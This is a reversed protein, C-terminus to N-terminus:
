KVKTYKAEQIKRYKIIAVGGIIVVIPVVVPLAVLLAFFVEM